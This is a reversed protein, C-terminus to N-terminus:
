KVVRFSQVFAEFKPADKEIDAAERGSSMDDIMIYISYRKGNQFFVVLRTKGFFSGEGYVIEYGELGNVTLKRASNIKAAGRFMGQVWGEFAKSFEEFSQPKAENVSVLVGCPWSHDPACEFHFANQVGKPHRDGPMHDHETQGGMKWDAPHAVSFGYKESTFTKLDAAQGVEVTCVFAVVLLGITTRIRM